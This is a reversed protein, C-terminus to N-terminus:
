GLLQADNIAQTQSGTPNTDHHFKGAYELLDELDRVDAETLIQEPTSLRNRCMERFQGIRASPKFHDPYAVRVFHELVLRLAEAVARNNPMPREIYECLIAHRRDHMTVADADVDWVGLKSGSGERVLQLASRSDAQSQSSEWLDVLFQKNHSLVILQAARNVLSRIEQVTTVARHEDLSSIPDDIVVIKEALDTDRDLSALFFALALTSRDGSSLTNRFSPEEPSAAGSGVPVASDNIVVSYTCTLGARTNTSILSGLRFGTNFRSLYENVVAECDPFATTRYEDLEARADELQRETVRKEEQENLYATCLAATTPEHRAKTAKLRQLNAALTALNGVAAQDKVRRIAVNAEQLSRSLEEVEQRKEDYVAVVANTEGSLAAQDLPAAQKAKLATAVAERASQWSDVIAVTNLEVDPVDCFRSWFQQRNGAVGVGREFAIQATEGHVQDLESLADSVRRKLNRYEESFYTRYHNIIPSGELDQACFPCTRASAAGTTETSALRQMGDAVWTEGGDGFEDLHAQVREAAAADLSPLDQRLIGDIEDLDFSPLTLPAIEPTSGITQQERAAELEREAERIAADIDDRPELACFDDVSLSGREGQPIAESKTHLATIHRERREILEEIRRSLSVAQSGLILEHLKQRHGADVSLGSYVNQEVFADDFVVMNPLSRNWTSNEFIAPPPGGVCEVIVHPLETADLRRRGIIPVPDGTALSRLIDALMTKGRGNEAYILTLRGLELNAGQDVYDFPGINRILRLENIM